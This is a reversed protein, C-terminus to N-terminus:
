KENKTKKFIKKYNRDELRKYEELVKEPETIKGTMIKKSLNVFPRYYFIIGLNFAYLLGLILLFTPLTYILPYNYARSVELFGFIVVLFTSNIALMVNVNRSSLGELFVIWDSLTIPHRKNKKNAM